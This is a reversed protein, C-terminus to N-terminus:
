QRSRWMRYLHQVCTTPSRPCCFFLLYECIIGRTWMMRMDERFYSVSADPKPQVMSVLSWEQICQLITSICAAMSRRSIRERQTPYTRQEGIRLHRALRFTQSIASCTGSLTKSVTWMTWVPPLLHDERFPQVNAWLNVSSAWPSTWFTSKSTLNHLCLSTLIMNRLLLPNTMKTLCQLVHCCLARSRRTFTEARPEFVIPPFVVEFSNVIYM